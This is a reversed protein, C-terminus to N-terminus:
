PQTKFQARYEVPSLNTVKKFQRNFNSVSNFGSQFCTERVTLDDELLLKHAYGIRVEKLYRTFSKKNVKKFYRSFAAPNMNAIGAVEELTIHDKFNTMVHKYVHYLRQNENKHFFNTYGQSSFSQIDPELSLYKLIKLLLIVRDFDNAEFIDEILERIGESCRKNFKIGQNGSSFLRRISHMEPMNFFDRGAFDEMFHIVIAEGKDEVGEEAAINDSRWQHPLNSGLFILDGPQFKKISDGIFSTGSSKTIWILEMEPHFHWPSFSPRNQISVSRNPVTRNIFVPKM